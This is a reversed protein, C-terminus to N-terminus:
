TVCAHRVRVRVRVRIRDRDRLRDRLRGRLRDRLRVRRAGQVTCRAGGPPARRWAARRPAAQGWAAGARGSRSALRGRLRRGMAARRAALVRAM